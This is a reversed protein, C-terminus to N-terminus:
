AQVPPAKLADLIAANLEAVAFPKRLMRAHGLAADLASSDAYGSVILVRLGPQAEQARKALEAGNMGPMAFDAVLLDFRKGEFASLGAEGSAVDTVAYGLGRLSEAIFRRVQRDDDVVLISTTANATASPVTPSPDAHAVAQAARVAGPLIMRVTCGENPASDVFVLGGSERVIGYVQSLGLGTGQGVPKTTFFPEMARARVSDTMGLGNDKVSLEVYDRRPLNRVDTYSAPRSEIDLVGGNPMADRANVALNLLALELQNTDSLVTDAEPTISTRIRVGPGVSRALLDSMGDLLEPLAVPELHMRQDRSFALLQSALKAGRQAAELANGALRQLRDNGAARTRILDLNGIIATLLNNFDHAIGGTLQGVAEMKQSQRLTEEARRRESMDRLVLVILIGALLASGLAALGAVVFSWSLPTDIRSSPIAIHASWGSWPSTFYATYNTLGEYTRGRYVGETGRAIAERVHTTALEGIRTERNITREIFRGERDVIAATAGEVTNGFLVDRFSGAPMGLAFVYALAGDRFVPVFVYLTPTPDFHVNSPTPGRLRELEAFLERTFLANPRPPGFPKRTDFLEQQARVDYFLISSWRPNSARVREVRPHFEAWDKSEIYVSTSLVNIATADGRVRADLLTMITQAKALTEAEVRHGEARLFSFLAVAAFIITPLGAAVGLAILSRRFFRM